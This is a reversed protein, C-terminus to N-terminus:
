EERTQEQKILFTLETQVTDGSEQENNYRRCVSLENGLVM